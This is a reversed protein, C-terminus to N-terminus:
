EREAPDSPRRVVVRCRCNVELPPHMVPGLPTKFAEGVDIGNPNMAMVTRHDHRVREDGRTKWYRRADRPISRNAKGQKFALYEGVNVVRTAEQRAIVSQRYEALARDHRIILKGIDDVKMEGTFAKKLASRQAANLHGEHRRIIARATLAPITIADGKVTRDPSNLAENLARAFRAASRAQDPALGVARVIQEAKQRAGIDSKQLEEYAIMVAEYSRRALPEIINRKIDNQLWSTEVSPNVRSRQSTAFRKMSLVVSGLLGYFFLGMLAGDAGTNLGEDLNLAVALAEEDGAEIAAILENIDIDDAARAFAKRLDHLLDAEITDRYQDFLDDAIM